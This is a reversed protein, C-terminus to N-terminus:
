RIIRAPESRTGAPNPTGRVLVRGAEVKVDFTPIRETFPAPSRGTDPLYQYGHWPCTICGDVVRGESLPGNQHQCLNSVCSVMGDYRYIAVREGAVVACRARRDPIDAVGCADVWGNTDPGLSRRDRQRERAGSALHLGLVGAVSAALLWGPVPSATQQLSGLAVHSVLLGYALYVMMHLAKWVPATLTALWFDHSTAAMLLLLTLAGLGLLEFPFTGPRTADAAGTLLSVVPNLNGLAHFQFTAFGAHGLALLCMTVGFHRRNYLLPLLRPDFRALPGIVLIITLMVMAGTGMARILATEATALPDRILTIAVFVALCAIVAAWLVLDYIRKQRNWGVAQYFASM